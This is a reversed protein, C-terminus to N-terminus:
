LDRLTKRAKPRLQVLTLTPQPRRRLRPRTPTTPDSRNSTRRPDTLVRDPTPDLLQPLTHPQLRPLDTTPTRPTSRQGLRIRAQQPVQLSQHIGRRTPIRARRQPPGRLTQPVDRARQDGHAMLHGIPRDPLQKATKPKPQVRVALRPFPGIMRIAVSLKPMDVRRDGRRELRPLRRDRDVAFLSLQDAIVLRDPTLVLRLATRDLDAGVVELVLVQAVRDRIADIVNLRILPHHRDTDGVVGARKRDVRDARPPLM